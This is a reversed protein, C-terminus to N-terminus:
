VRPFRGCALVVVATALKQFMPSDKDYLPGSDSVVCYGVESVTPVRQQNYRGFVASRFATLDGLGSSSATVGTVGTGLLAVLIPFGVGDRRNTNFEPREQEPGVCAVVVAPFNAVKPLDTEPDELEYVAFPSTYVAALDTAIAGRIRKHYDARAM